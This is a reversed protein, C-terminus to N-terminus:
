RKKKKTINFFLPFYFTTFTIDKSKNRTKIENENLFGTYTRTYSAKIIKLCGKAMEEKM